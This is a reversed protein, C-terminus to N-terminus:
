RLPMRFTFRTEEPSSTTTLTGGHANAIQSAIYLGLGLGQHSPKVAGREFPEFLRKLAAVPIPQGSNSVSVELSDRDTKARVIVPGDAAGHTLANALLNSVLQSLRSKDCNVPGNLAIETDIVRDPQSTRLEGVVQTFIPLM